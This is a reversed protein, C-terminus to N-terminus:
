AVGWYDAGLDAIARATALAFDHEFWQEADDQSCTPPEGEPAPIDHGYGIAWKGKADPQACLVCGEHKKVLDAACSVGLPWQGSVLIRLNEQERNPVQSYLKSHMLEAAAKGWAQSRIAALMNVFQALGAGGIEYAMDILVARRPEDLTM